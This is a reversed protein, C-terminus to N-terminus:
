AREELPIRVNVRTGLGHGSHIYMQGGIMEVRERMGKLGFHTSSDVASEEFGQGNDEVTLSVGGDLRQLVVRMETARAHRVINSFTEQAVRYVCQERDAPLNRLDSSSSLDLELNAKAAASRALNGIAIGLGVDELPSARLAQLARRAETLGHRAGQLAGELMSRASRADSDWVANVAELQVTVASLSHALTDHLERALRNREQSVALQEVTAAYNALKRNAAALAARQERQQHLLWGVSIVVVVAAFTRATFLVVFLRSLSSGARVFPLSLIFDAGSLLLTSLVALRLRYQWAILLTIILLLPWAQLLMMLLDTERLSEPVLRLTLYKDMLLNIAAIALMLPLFGRRLRREFWPIFALVLLLLPGPASVLLYQTPPLSVGLGVSIPRRVFLNGFVQFACLIRIARLLGPELHKQSDKAAATAM